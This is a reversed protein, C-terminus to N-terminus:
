YPPHVWVVEPSKPTWTGDGRYFMTGIDVRVQCCLDEMKTVTVSCNRTKIYKETLVVSEYAHRDHEGPMVYDFYAHVETLSPNHSISVHTRAPTASTGKSNGPSLKTDATVRSKLQAATLRERLERRCLRRQLFADM